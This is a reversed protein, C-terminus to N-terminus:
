RSMISLKVSIVKILLNSQVQFTIKQHDLQIFVQSVVEEKVRWIQIQDCVVRHGHGDVLTNNVEVLYSVLEASKHHLQNPMLHDIPGQTGTIWLRSVSNYFAIYIPSIDRYFYLLYIDTSMKSNFMESLCM